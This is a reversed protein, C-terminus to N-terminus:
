ERRSGIGFSTGSGQKIVGSAPSMEEGDIPEVTIRYREIASPTVGVVHSLLTHEMYGTTKLEYPPRHDSDKPEHTPLPIELNLVTEGAADVVFPGEAKWVFAIRAGTGLVDTGQTPVEDDIVIFKLASIVSETDTRGTAITVRVPIKGDGWHFSRPLDLHLRFGTDLIGM